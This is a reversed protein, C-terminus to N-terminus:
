LIEKRKFNGHEDKEHLADYIRSKIEKIRKSDKM